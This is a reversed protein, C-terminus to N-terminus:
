PPTSNQVPAADRPRRFAEYRSRCEGAGAGPALIVVEDHSSWVDSASLGGYSPAYGDKDVCWRFFYGPVGHIMIPVDLVWERQAELEVIGRGDTAYVDKHHLMHHPDSASVFFVAADVIPEASPDRVTLTLHPQVLAYRPYCGCLLMLATCVALNALHGRPATSARIQIESVQMRVVVSM